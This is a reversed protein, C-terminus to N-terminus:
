FHAQVFQQISQPSDPKSLHDRLQTVIHPLDPLNREKKSRVLCAQAEFEDLCQELCLVIGAYILTTEQQATLTITSDALLHTLLKKCVTAVVWGSDEDYPWPPSEGVAKPPPLLLLWNAKTTAMVATLAPYLLTPMITISPITKGMLQELFSHLPSEHFVATLQTVAEQWVEGFETGFAAGMNTDNGFNALATAWSNPVDASFSENIKFDPWQCRMAASFLADLSAGNELAQNLLSVATEEEYGQLLHRVQKAHGHVAHPLQKQEIQPWNSLTFVATALQVRPDISIQIQKM